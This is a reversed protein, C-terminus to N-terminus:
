DNSVGLLDLMTEMFDTKAIEAKEIGKKYVECAKQYQGSSQFMKGIELLNNFYSEQLSLAKEKEAINTQM